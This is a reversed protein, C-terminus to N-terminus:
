AGPPRRGPDIESPRVRLRGDRCGTETNVKGADIQLEWNGSAKQVNKLADLRKGKTKRCAAAEAHCLRRMTEADISWSSLKQLTRKGREFSDDVGVHCIRRRARRTFSGNLGLVADAPFGADGCTLCTRYSRKVAIKGIATGM